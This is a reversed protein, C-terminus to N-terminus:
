RSEAEQDERWLKKQEKRLANDAKYYAAQFRELDFDSVTIVVEDDYTSRPRMEDIRNNIRDIERYANRTAEHLPPSHGALTAGHASWQTTPMNNRQWYRNRDEETRHWAYELEELLQSLATQVTRRENDRQRAASVGPDPKSGPYGYPPQEPPQPLAQVARGVAAEVSREHWGILRRAAEWGLAGLVVVGAVIYFILGV